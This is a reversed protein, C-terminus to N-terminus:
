KQERLRLADAAAEAAALEPTEARGAEALSRDRRYVMIAYATADYTRGEPTTCRLEIKDGTKLSSWPTSQECMDEAHSADYAATVLSLAVDSAIRKETRQTLDDEAHAAAYAAAAAAFGLTVAVAIAFRKM